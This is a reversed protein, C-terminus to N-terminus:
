IVLLEMPLVKFITLKLLVKNLLCFFRMGIASAEDNESWFGADDGFHGKDIFYNQKPIPLRGNKPMGCAVVKLGAKGTTTLNAEMKPVFLPIPPPAETKEVLSKKNRFEAKFNNSMRRGTDDVEVPAPVSNNIEGNGNVKAEYQNNLYNHNSHDLINNQQQQSQLTKDIHNTQESSTPPVYIYEWKTMTKEDQNMYPKMFDDILSGNILNNFNSTLIPNSNNNTEAIKNLNITALNTHQYYDLNNTECKTTKTICNTLQSLDWHDIKMDTTNLITSPKIEVNKDNENTKLSGYDYNNYTYNYNYDLVTNKVNNNIEPHAAATSSTVTNDLNIIGNENKTDAIKADNVPGPLSFIDKVHPPKSPNSTYRKTSKKLFRGDSNSFYKKCFEEFEIDANTTFQSKNDNSPQNDVIPTAFPDSPM